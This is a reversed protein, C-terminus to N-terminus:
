IRGIKKPLSDYGAAWTAFALVMAYGISLQGFEPIALAGAIEQAVAGQRHAVVYEIVDLTRM